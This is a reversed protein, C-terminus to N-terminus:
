RDGDRGQVPGAAGGVRVMNALRATFVGLSRAMTFLWSWQAQDTKVPLTTALLRAYSILGVRASGALAGWAQDQMAARLGDQEVVNYLRTVTAEDADRPITDQTERQATARLTGDELAVPRGGFLEAGVPPRTERLPEIRARSDADIPDTVEDDYEEDDTVDDDDLAVEDQDYALVLTEAAAMVRDDGSNVAHPLHAIASKVVPPKTVTVPTSVPQGSDRLGPPAVAPASDAVATHRVPPQPKPEVRRPSGYFQPRAM